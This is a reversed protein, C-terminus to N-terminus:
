GRWFKARADGSDADILSNDEVVNCRGDGIYEGIHGVDWLTAMMDKEREHRM